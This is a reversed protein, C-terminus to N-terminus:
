SLVRFIVRGVVVHLTAAWCTVKFTGGVPELSSQRRVRSYQQVHCYPTKWLNNYGFFPPRYHLIMTFIIIEPVGM